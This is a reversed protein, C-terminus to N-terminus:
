WPFVHLKPNRLPQPTITKCPKYKASIRQRHIAVCGERWSEVVKIDLTWPGKNSWSVWYLYTTFLFLCLSHTQSRALWDKLSGTLKKNVQIVKVWSRLGSTFLLCPLLQSANEHLPLVTNYARVHKTLSISCTQIPGWIFRATNKSINLTSDGRRMWVRKICHTFPPKTKSTLLLYPM